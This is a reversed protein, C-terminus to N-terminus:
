RSALAQVGATMDAQGSSIQILVFSEKFSSHMRNIRHLVIPIKEIAGCLM